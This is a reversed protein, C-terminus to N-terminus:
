TFITYLAYTWFAAAIILSILVAASGMDKARGALEDYGPSVKDIIAEVASNLLEVILVLANVAFLLLKLTAAVPLLFIVPLLLVFVITEQRFAEENRYCSALGKLSYQFASLLRALGTKSKPKDM